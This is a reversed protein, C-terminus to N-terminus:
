THFFIYRYKRTMGSTNFFQIAYDILHKFDWDVKEWYKADKIKRVNDRLSEITEKLSDSFSDLISVVDELSLHAYYTAADM